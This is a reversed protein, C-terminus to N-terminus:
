HRCLELDHGISSSHRLTEVHERRLIGNTLVRARLGGRGKLWHEAREDRFASNMWYCPRCEEVGEFRVGQIEFEKGVLAPLDAGSVVVNRRTAAPQADPLNLESRMAGLVDMSFFTFQGKYNQKFDFYRDGRIGRGAVCEIENAELIPYTGPPGGHHGVFNHGPSTFLHRVHIM